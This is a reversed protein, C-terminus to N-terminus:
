SILTVENGSVVSEWELSRRGSNVSARDDNISGNDNDNDNDNDDRDDNISGNFNDKRQWFSLKIACKAIHISPM